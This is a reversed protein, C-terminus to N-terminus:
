LTGAAKNLVPAKLDGPTSDFFPLSISFVETGELVGWRPHYWIHPSGVTGQVWWRKREGEADRRRGM